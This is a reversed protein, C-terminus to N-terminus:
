FPMIAEKIKAVLEGASVSDWELPSRNNTTSIRIRQIGPYDSMFRRTYNRDGLQQKEPMGFDISSIQALAYQEMRGDDWKAILRQNTVIAEGWDKRYAREMGFGGGMFIRNCIRARYLEHEQDRDRGGERSEAMKDEEANIDPNQKQVGSGGAGYVQHNYEKLRETLAAGDLARRLTKSPRAVAKAVGFKRVKLKGEKDMKTIQAETLAGQIAEIGHQLALSNVHRRTEQARDRLASGWRSGASAIGEDPPAAGPQMTDSRRPTSTTLIPKPAQGIFWPTLQVPEQGAREPLGSLAATMLARSDDDFVEGMLGNGGLDEAQYGGRRAAALALRLCKASGASLPQGGGGHLSAVLVNWLTQEVVTEPSEGKIDGIVTGDAIYYILVACMLEAAAEMATGDDLPEAEYRRMGEQWRASDDAPNAIVWEAVIQASSPKTEPMFDMGKRPPSLDM